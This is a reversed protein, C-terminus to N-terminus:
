FGRFDRGMKGATLLSWLDTAKEEYALFKQDDLSSKKVQKFNSLLTVSSKKAARLYNKGAESFALVQFTQQQTMADEISEQDMALSAHLLLRAIRWRSYRRTKVLETFERFTAAKRMCALIRKDLGVEYGAMASLDMPNLLWLGRYFRYLADALETERYQPPSGACFKTMERGDSMARIASATRIRDKDCARKVMVLPIAPALQKLSKYYGYALLANSQFVQGWSTKEVELAQKYAAAYSAGSEMFARLRSHFQETKEYDYIAHFTTEDGFETGCFVADVLPLKSAVGMAGYSFYEGGSTASQVPHTIVVDAGNEVLDRARTFKDTVVPLGRQTFSASMLVVVGYGSEKAQQILYTHGYHLPNTEAVILAYPM